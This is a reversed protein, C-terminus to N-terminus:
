GVTRAKTTKKNKVNFSKLGPFQRYRLSSLRFAIGVPTTQRQFTPLKLKNSNHWSSDIPHIIFLDM